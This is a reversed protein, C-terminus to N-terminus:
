FEFKFGFQVLFIVTKSTENILKIKNVSFINEQCYKTEYIQGGHM